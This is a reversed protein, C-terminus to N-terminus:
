VLLLAIGVGLGFGLVTTVLAAAFRRPTWWRAPARAIPETEIELREYPRTFPATVPEFQSTPVDDSRRPKVELNAYDDRELDVLPRAHPVTLDAALADLTVEALTGKSSSRAVQM